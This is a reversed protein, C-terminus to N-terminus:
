LVYWATGNSQIQASQWQTNLVLTSAGDITEAGNPDITVTNASSDIKKINFTQGAATAATPLNVTFAASTADALLTTPSTVTLTATTTASTIGGAFVWRNFVVPAGALVSKGVPIAAITFTSGSLGSVTTWHTTGDSLLIGVIDANAATLITNVTISTAGAALSTTTQTEWAFVNVGSRRATSDYIPTGEPAFGSTPVGALSLAIPKSTAAGEQGSPQSLHRSYLSAGLSRFFGGTASYVLVRIYKVESRVVSGALGNFTAASVDAGHGYSGTASTYSFSPASFYVGGGGESTLLNMDADYVYVVARALSGDFDGDFVVTDGNVVPIRDSVAILRNAGSTFGKLSPTMAARIFSNFRPANVARENSASATANAVILSQGNVSFLVNKKHTMLARTTIINDMGLDSVPMIPVQYDARPNGVGSWSVIIKNLYTNAACTWGPAGSVGEFRGDEILNSTCNTYVIQVFSGEFVPRNFKNHNHAYGVGTIYLRQIAGGHFTNENVWAGTGTDTLEVKSQAGNLYIQNYATSAGTSVASDAFLQLYNCSGVTVTSRKLGFIKLVPTAPPAVTLVSQGNTVDGFKMTWNSSNAGGGVTLTAPTGSTGMQIPGPIDINKVGRLDANSACFLKGWYAARLGKGLAIAVVAAAVLNATADYTTTGAVIAAREASPIFGLVDIWDENIEKQTRLYSGTETYQSGILSAGTGAALAAATNASSIWGTNGAGSEKVYLTTNAAGDTRAFISGVTATVVGEPTGTGSTWTATGAGPRFNASYSNNWRQSTSGLDISATVSPLFSVNTGTNAAGVNGLWATPTASANGVLMRGNSYDIRVRDNADASAKGQLYLASHKVAWATAGATEPRTGAPYVTLVPSSSSSQNQVRAGETLSQYTGRTTRLENNGGVTGAYTFVINHSGYGLFIENSAGQNTNDGTYLVKPTTAEWRGQIITNYSGGNEVHYEATDGELSPKIFVHNNAVLTSKAIRIHRTGAINSGEGTYHSFRGGYHNNENVWGTAAGGDIAYNIANNELHGIHIENHVNGVTGYSTEQVGIAFGVINGTHVECSYTNVLRLGTGQGAWGTGPKGKNEMRQPMRITKNSLITTPNSANGTSIEVAIAPSGYVFFTANSFDADGKIVIKQAGVRFTGFADLPRGHLFARDIAKQIKVSTDTAPTGSEADTREAGTLYNWINYRLSLAEAATMPESYGSDLDSGVLSAGDSTGLYAAFATGTVATPSGVEVWQGGDADIMWEYTKGTDSDTWHRGQFPSVPPEDDFVALTALATAESAAAAIASDEAQEVYEIIDIDGFTLMWKTPNGVPNENFGDVLCKYIKGDSGQAYSKGATYVTVADWMPIGAENIHKLFQDSRNQLFNQFQHPPREVIWGANVKADSPEVKVGSTAWVNKISPKIPLTM